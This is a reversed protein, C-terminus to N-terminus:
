AAQTHRVASKNGMKNGVSIREGVTPIRCHLELGTLRRRATQWHGDIHNEMVRSGDHEPIVTILRDHLTLRTICETSFGAQSGGHQLFVHTVVISEVLDDVLPQSTGAIGADRGQRLGCLLRHVTDDQQKQSQHQNIRYSRTAIVVIMPIRSTPAKCLM